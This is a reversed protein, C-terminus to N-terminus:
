RCGCFGWAPLSTKRGKHDVNLVAQYSVSACANGSSNKVCNREALGSISANTNEGRLKLLMRDQASITNDLKRSHQEDVLKLTALEGNPKVSASGDGNMKFLLPGLERKNTPRYFFCGCGIPATDDSLPTIALGASNPKGSQKGTPPADQAVILGPAGALVLATLVCRWLMLRRRSTIAVPHLKREETARM